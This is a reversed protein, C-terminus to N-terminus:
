ARSRGCCKKFKRGSGCPCPSNPEPRGDSATRRQQSETGPRSEAVAAGRVVGAAPRGAGVEAAMLKMWPDIHKFFRKLGRCLYNLGPEGDPTLLFRNKPCEGNCAFLYECRRCYAPLRDRKDQGFRQQRDALVIEELPRDGLRGRRHEPYVFHDCSYISGDPEMAVALGCTEAFVCLASGLRMWQALMTDFTQVFVRGVDRALWEDFVGCLFAGFEDPAVSWDTADSDAAAPRALPAVAEFDRREVCPIFQMFQVGAEDRLFRYVERPRGANRRNVVVLANFEVRHRRLMALGAMVRDFSGRGAKDVRYADHLERPGDISLGVLFRQEAFFRAWQDDILTGNTQLSNAIRRGPPAHRRQLEVIRRFFDLGMLTPEGGQWAFTIEGDPPLADCQYGVYERIFRELTEDSIRRGAPEECGYLLRDKALYFCYACGLNCAPGVP